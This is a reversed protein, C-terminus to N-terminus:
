SSIPSNRKVLSRGYHTHQSSITLSQVTGKLWHDAMIHTNVASQVTGKLWHDEMIHTNVASQVTGKLWNDKYYSHQSSIPSNRKVM